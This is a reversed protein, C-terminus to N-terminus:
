LKIKKILPESNDSFLKIMMEIGSKNKTVFSVVLGTSVFSAGSDFSVHVNLESAQSVQPTECIILDPKICVVESSTFNGFKVVVQQLPVEPFENGVIKILTGGHIPTVSPTLSNFQSHLNL